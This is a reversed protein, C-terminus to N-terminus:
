HHATRSDEENHSEPTGARRQDTTVLEAQQHPPRANSPINPRCRLGGRLRAGGHLKRRVPSSEPGRRRILLYIAPPAMARRVRARRMAQEEVARASSTTSRLPWLTTPIWVSFFSRM